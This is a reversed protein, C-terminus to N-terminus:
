QIVPSKKMAMPTMKKDDGTKRFCEQHVM